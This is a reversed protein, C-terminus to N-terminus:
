PDGSREVEPEGGFVKGVRLIADREVAVAIDREGVLRVVFGAVLAEDFPELVEHLRLGRARMVAVVAVLAEERPIEEDALADRKGTDRVLIAGHTKTEIRFGAREVHVAARVFHLIEVDHVAAEERRAAGHIGREGDDRVGQADAIV